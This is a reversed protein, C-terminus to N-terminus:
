LLGVQHSSHDLANESFDSSSIEKVSGADVIADFDDTLLWHGSENIGILTVDYKDQDVAQLMSRASTVSVEHECSRGGFLIGLSLKKMM